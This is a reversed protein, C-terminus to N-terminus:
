PAGHVCAYFVEAARAKFRAQLGVAAEADTEPPIVLGVTRGALLNGPIDDPLMERGQWRVRRAQMDVVTVIEQPEIRKGAEQEKAMYGAIGILMTLLADAMAISTTRNKM